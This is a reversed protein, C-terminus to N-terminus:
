RIGGGLTQYLTILNTARTLRATIQNLQVSYLNVQSTLTNLYTDSGQEYRAKSLFLLRNAAFAADDNAAIDESITGRQALADAVERFATQVAKEYQAVAADRQAKALVLNARNRGGDFIPVSISPSITWIGSGGGFLDTLRLTATGGSATLTITPFFAARAAGINANYAKLQDEAEVVDPRRLLVTSSLGAPLDALTPITEDQPGPVLDAPVPAGVLLTLANVDQALQTTYTVVGTRAQELAAQAQRVDVESAVGSNFRARTLNLTTQDAKLTDQSLKLRAADASYTVYDAAVESILSIRAARQAEETSLYQELAQRTLNRVRGWLDIEYNSIGLDATYYRVFDSGTSVTTGGAAGGGIGGAGGGTTTAGGTTTGGTTAGTAGGGFSGFGFPTHEYTASGSADVEPVLQARQVHYQARAEIIQQVAVRLDRNNDLSLQIIAQLKPDIFFDRWPLDAAEIRVPERAGYTADHPLEAPVAKIPREYRPALDICGGLAVALLLPAVRRAVAAFRWARHSADPRSSVEAAGCM